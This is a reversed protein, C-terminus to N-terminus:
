MFPVCKAPTDRNDPVNLGADLWKAISKPSDNLSTNELSDCLGGVFASWEDDVSNKSNYEM